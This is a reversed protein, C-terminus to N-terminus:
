KVGGRAMLGMVMASGEPEFTTWLSNCLYASANEIEPPLVAHRSRLLNWTQTLMPCFPAVPPGDADAPVPMARSALLKVDFLDAGLDNLMYGRVDAVQDPMGAQSYAHAAYLGLTPDLGKMIRIAGALANAQERSDVQFSNHDVAIAVKARLTEIREKVQSYDPWRDTNSSPVYNVGAVGDESVVVHGIYGELAPVVTCRRDDFMIGVSAVRHVNYLRIKAVHTNGDGGDLLEVRANTRPSVIADTVIAGSVAFGVQSEYHDVEPSPIQRNFEAQDPMHRLEPSVDGRRLAEPIADAAYHGAARRPTSITHMRQVPPGLVRSIYVDDDCPVNYEIRQKVNSNAEDILEDVKTQLYHRLKRNPVVAVTQGGEQIERVMDPEPEVYALMLAHTLLSRSVGGITLEYASQLDSTAKFFDVDSRTVIDSLTPFGQVGDVYAGARSTPLSRCADSIFVVNPIGSYRATDMATLLNIAESGRTAANSLLWRDSRAQWLGHGSFYVVLLHYKPPVTVFEEIAQEVDTKTVSGGDDDHLCKVEFSEGRLWDAVQKASSAASSLVPRGGTKNVGIVVAAKKKM